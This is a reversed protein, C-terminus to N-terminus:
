IGASYPGDCPTKLAVYDLVLIMEGVAVLRASVIEVPSAIQTFFRKGRECSKKQFQTDALNLEHLTQNLRM